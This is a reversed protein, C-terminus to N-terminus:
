RARGNGPRNPVLLEIAADSVTIEIPLTGIIDGDGQVPAGPPGDIAVSRGAVTRVDPLRSLRGCALAGAYRLMARAGATQLMVVQLRAAGLDAAPAVHFPGGYCRAKCVVALRTSYPEGDVTVAFEPFGYSRVQRLAELGYAVRGLRRKLDLPLGHVVAGDIGASAMLLFFRDGARALPVTRRHGGAITALVAAATPALGIEHALVNATGLPLFALPVRAAAAVLGNAVENVTGDGGAAVVLDFGDEAASRAAAEADGKRATTSLEPRCGLAALGDIVKALRRRRRAGATPNFIVVARRFGAAPHGATRTARGIAWGIRM